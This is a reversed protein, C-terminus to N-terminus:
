GLEKKVKKPIHFKRFTTPRVWYGARNITKWTVVDVGRYTGVAAAGLTEKVANEVAAKALKLDAIRDDLAQWEVLHAVDDDDLEAADEAADPYRAALWKGASASGDLPPPTEAKVLEWFAAGRAILEAALDDDLLFRREVPPKGGLAAVLFGERVGVALMQWTIQCVYEVPAADDDWDGSMYWGANKADVVARPPGEIGTMRDGLVVADPTAILWAHEDHRFLGGDGVYRDTERAWWDVIRGEIFQGWRMADTSEFETGHVKSSWVDWPGRRRSLGAVAAIESAGIGSRRAALWDVESANAPLVRVGATV